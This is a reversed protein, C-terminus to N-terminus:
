YLLGAEGPSAPEQAFGQVTEEFESQLNIVSGSRLAPLLRVWWQKRKEGERPSEQEM